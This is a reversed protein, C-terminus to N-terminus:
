WCGLYVERGGQTSRRRLQTSRQYNLAESILIVERAVLV